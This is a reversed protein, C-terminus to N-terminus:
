GAVARDMQPAHRRPPLTKSSSPAPHAPSLSIDLSNEESFVPPFRLTIELRSALECFENKIDRFYSHM